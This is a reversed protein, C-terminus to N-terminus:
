KKVTVFYFVIRVGILDQMKCGDVSYKDKKKEIKKKISQMSKSRSFIRYFVGSHNLYDKLQDVIQREFYSFDVNEM